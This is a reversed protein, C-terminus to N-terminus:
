VDDHESIEDDLDDDSEDFEEKILPQALGMRSMKKRDGGGSSDWVGLFASDDEREIHEAHEEELLELHHVFSKKTIMGMLIGYHKVLIVKVGMKRFTEHVSHVPTSEVCQMVSEDVVGSLDLKCVTRWTRCREPSGRKFQVVTSGNVM